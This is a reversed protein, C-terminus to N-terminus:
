RGNGWSPARQGRAREWTDRAGPCASASETHPIGARVDRPSLACSPSLPKRQHRQKQKGSSSESDQKARGPVSPSHRGGSCCFDRPPRGATLRVTLTDGEPKCKRQGSVSTQEKQTHASAPLFPTAWAGMWLGGRPSAHAPQRSTLPPVLARRLGPGQLRLARRSCLKPMGTTGGRVWRQQLDKRTTPKVQANIDDHGGGPETDYVAGLLSM